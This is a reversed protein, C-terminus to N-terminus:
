ALGVFNEVACVGHRAGVIDKNANYPSRMRLGGDVIGAGATEPSAHRAGVNEKKANYPSRM